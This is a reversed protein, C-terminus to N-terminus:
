RASCKTIQPHPEEGPVKQVCYIYRTTWIALMMDFYTSVVEEQNYSFDGYNYEFTARRPTPHTRSSFTSIVAIQEQTLPKDIAYFDYYQYESM